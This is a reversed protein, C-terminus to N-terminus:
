SVIFVLYRLAILKGWTKRILQSFMIFPVDLLVGMLKSVRVMHVFLIDILYAIISKFYIGVIALAVSNLVDWILRDTLNQTKFTCLYVVLLNDM